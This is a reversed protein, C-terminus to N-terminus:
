LPCFETNGNFSIQGTNGGNDDCVLPSPATNGTGAVTSQEVQVVDGGISSFTVNNIEFDAAGSGGAGLRVANQGVDSITGGNITVSGGSPFAVGNIVGDVGIDDLALTEFTASADTDEISIGVGDANTVTTTGTVTLTGADVNLLDIGDDGAFGIQSNLNNASTLSQFTMDIQAINILVLAGGGDADVSSNGTVNMINNGGALFGTTADGTGASDTTINVNNFNVTGMQGFVDVGGNLGSQDIITLDNFTWTGDGDTTFLSSFSPRTVTMPTTVTIDGDADFIFMAGNPNDTSTLSNGGTTNFNVASGPATEDISIIVDNNAVISGDYDFQGEFDAINVGAGTPNTITTTAPFTFTGASGGLIDIGADGGNLTVTGDFDYTGDANSFQLGTGNTADLTNSADFPLSGTHDSIDIAAGAGTQTITSDTFDITADGGNVQVSAGGASAVHVDDFTFTGSTGNLEIGESNATIDVDDVTGSGGASSLAAGSGSIELSFTEVASGAGMAVTDAGGSASLQPPGGGGPPVLVHGAVTLGVPEGILDQNADLMIGADYGTDTGDGEYVFIHEGPGSPLGADALQDFPAGSTGNKVPGANTNDVFWVPTGLDVEVTGSDSAGFGDTVTYEFTDIGTFGPPPSYTFTGDAGMTVTGGNTSSADSATVTLVGHGVDNDLVSGVVPVSPFGSPPVGVELLVNGIGDYNDTVALITPELYGVVDVLLHTSAFTFLCMEGDDNLGAIIENAGDVGATYNLSAVNPRPIECPHVTLFGDNDPGVAAVNAIAATAGDPVGGRGTVQLTYESGAPQKGAGEHLGDFTTSGPRTELFRQPSLNVYSTGSPIYGVVDLILDLDHETFICLDGNTDVPTILENARDVVPVHNLSSANPLAPLCPHVLMFGADEPGVAGVNVIVAEVSAPVGARGTVRVKTTSGAVTRGIGESVGDITSAGERTELLRAPDVPTAANGIARTGARAPAGVGGAPIFGVVDVTLDTAAFTYICLSGSTSLGAVIENGVTIDTYYNLSSAVPRPTLCPDTTLFGWGEPDVATIYLVV